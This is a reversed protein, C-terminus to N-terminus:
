AVRLINLKGTIYTDISSRLSYMHSYVPEDFETPEDGPQVPFDGESLAVSVELFGSGDTSILSPTFPKTIGTNDRREVYFKTDAPFDLGEGIDDTYWFQLVNTSYELTANFNAQAM